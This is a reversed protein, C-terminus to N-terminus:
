GNVTESIKYLNNNKFEAEEILHFSSLVEPKLNNVAVTHEFHASPKYDAAVITWGDDQQKVNKTGMNIMPEIAIVIGPKLLMGTGHKGYNPVEPKEHLNRGIGHGVLERVVGFGNQEAHNQITASIDGVRNGAIAKNVGLHLCEKTVQMLKIKDADIEGVAFTYASDGYFGNKLVGCDISVLDGDKLEYEGPMGHVVAENVSICLACPFGKFGKFAATADHALIFEDAIKNLAATSIGARIHKAVEAITEGVLLSSIRILEIEEKTKITVKM